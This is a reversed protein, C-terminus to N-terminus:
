IYRTNNWRRGDVNEKFFKRKKNRKERQQNEAYLKSINKKKSYKQFFLICKSVPEAKSGIIPLPNNGGIDIIYYQYGDHYKKISESNM